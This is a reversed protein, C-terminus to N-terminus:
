TYSYTNDVKQRDWVIRQVIWSGKGSERLLHRFPVRALQQDLVMSWWWWLVELMEFGLM